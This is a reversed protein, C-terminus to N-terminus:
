FKMNAILSVQHSSYDSDNWKYDYLGKVSWANSDCNCYLMTFGAGVNYLDKDQKIGQAKFSSGGGAFRADQEMTTSNFDHLWRAHAEPSVAGNSTQIVREVKVGLSSQVFDYDQSDVHLSADGGGNETYSGVRIHSAQLSALPTITTENVYFHKGVAALATYQQGKYDANVKRDIGPFSIFRDGEYSDVGATLAAQVFWPQPAYEFYGTIQYSDVETKGPSNNDYISTNTYGGGLGVRTQNSLPVDYGLMFGVAETEYGNMKQTDDQEGISGIAKGWWNNHQKTNSCEHLKPETRPKNPDCATDCCNAQVEDMRAMWQDEFMRTAQGAIWPAALNTNGPALQALAGNIAATTPLIAIADQIARFDSGVPANVDLVPAVAVAGPTNVLTNLPAAVLLLNVDGTTTPVGSFTYRPSTNIVTVPAANTGAPADVIRFNTGNTLAGTVTPTVTIGGANILSTGVNVHGFVSDSAITTSITGGPNTTLPGGTITLTNMGLNLGLTQVAGNISANGGAVSILKIGSAGGVAGNVLSGNNLILTGTNATNTTIAGILTSGAGLNIIGDNAYVPATIVDGNFNVQGTGSVNFTQSFVAGNFNVISGNAGASVNLLESGVTGTFGNVTSSGAFVVSATDAATSTIAGGVDNNTNINQNSGVSLTGNGATDVGNLEGEIGVVSPLAVAERASSTPAWATIAAAVAATIIKVRMFTGRHNLEIFKIFVSTIDRKHFINSNILSTHRAAYM